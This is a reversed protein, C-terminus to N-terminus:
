LNVKVIHKAVIERMKDYTSAIRGNFIPSKPTFIPRAFMIVINANFTKSTLLANSIFTNLIMIIATSKLLKTLNKSDTDPKISLKITMHKIILNYLKEIIPILM